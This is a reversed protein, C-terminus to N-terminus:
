AATESMWLAEAVLSLAGTILILGPEAAAATARSVAESVDRASAAFPAKAREAAALVRASPM